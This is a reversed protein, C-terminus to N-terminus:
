EGDYDPPEDWTTESTKLNAYYYAQSDEDWIKSWVPKKKKAPAVDSKKKGMSPKSSAAQTKKKPAQSEARKLLEALPEKLDAFTSPSAQPENANVFGNAKEQAKQPAMGIQEMALAQVQQRGHKINFMTRNLVLKCKYKENYSSNTERLWKEVSWRLQDDTPPFMDLLLVLFQWLMEEGQPNQGKPDPVYNTLCKIVLLYIENRHEPKQHFDRFTEMVHLDRKKSARLNAYKLIGKHFGVVANDWLKKNSGGPYSGPHKCIASHIVDGGPMYKMFLQTRKERGFFKENAWEVPSKLLGCSSPSYWSGANKAIYIETLEQEIAIARAWKADQGAKAEKIALEQQAKMMNERPPTLIKKFFKITDDSYKLEDAAAVVARCYAEDLVKNAKPIHSKFLDVREAKVRTKNAIPAGYGIEDARGLAEYCQTTDWTMPLEDYAKNLMRDVASVKNYLERVRRVANCAQYGREDCMELAAEMGHLDMNAESDLLANECEPDDHLRAQIFKDLLDRASDAVQTKIRFTDAMIVAKSLRNLFEDKDEGQYKTHKEATIRKLTEEIEKSKVKISRALEITKHEEARYLMMSAGVRLNDKKLNLKSCIAECGKKLNAAKGAVGPAICEYRDIFQQHPLRFPFGQKRIRVAEFVGSFLLQEYCMTPVFTLEAKSPNPKVCRVYHPETKDLTQVLLMLQQTFQSGLSARQDKQSTQGEPFLTKMLANKSTNVCNLMDDNMRDRNKDLFNTVDYKVEGAYHMIAFCNKFKFVVKFVKNKTHAQNVKDLFGNDSGKPVQLEEDLLPLVGQPKKSMILDIMPQNDSYEVAEFQIGERRYLEQELKFTNKNFHQQLMENTFNICLQEFSNEKFIEFGFIDLIGVSGKRNGPDAVIMSENVKVVIWAFLGGYIFKALAHRSDSAEKDSCPTNIPKQGKVILTRFLLAKELAAVDVEINKAIWSVLDKSEPSVTVADKKDKSFTINGCALVAAVLQWIHETEKSTFKLEVLAECMEKFDASDNVTPIDIVGGGATYHYQDPKLLGLSKRQASTASKTLQYFIHFNREEPAPQVVRIKELLYQTTTSSFIMMDINFFVEMYKGFRSSNDNRVTKANGFGELIPNCKLVKDEVNGVSGAIQAMYKLCQKACETKGAGSEGSVIIAQNVKFEVLNTYANHAINFIHPERDETGRQIYRTM